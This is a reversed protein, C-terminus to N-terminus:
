YLRPARRIRLLYPVRGRELECKPKYGIESFGLALRRIFLNSLTWDNVRWLLGLNVQLVLPNVVSGVIFGNNFHGQTSRIRKECQIEFLGVFSRDPLRLPLLGNAPIEIDSPHHNRLRYGVLYCRPHSVCSIAGM